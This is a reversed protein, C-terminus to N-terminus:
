EWEERDAQREAIEVVVLKTEVSLMNWNEKVDGHVHNRWDHVREAKEFEPNIVKDYHKKKYEEIIGM